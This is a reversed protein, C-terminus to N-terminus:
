EISEAMHLIDEYAIKEADYEIVCSTEPSLTWCLYSKDEIEGYFADYQNVRCERKNEMIDYDVVLEIADLNLGTYRGSENEIYKTQCCYYVIMNGESDTYSFPTVKSFSNCRYEEDVEKLANEIRYITEAIQLYPDTGHNQRLTYGIIDIAMLLVLVTCLLKSKM